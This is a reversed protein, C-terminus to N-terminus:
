VYRSMELADELMEFLEAQMDTGVDPHRMSQWVDLQLLHQMTRTWILTDTDLTNLFRVPLWKIAKESQYRRCQSGASLELNTDTIPSKDRLLAIVSTNEPLLTQIV